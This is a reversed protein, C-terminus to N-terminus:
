SQEQEAKAMITEITKLAIILERVTEIQGVYFQGDHRDELYLTMPKRSIHLECWGIGGFYVKRILKMM